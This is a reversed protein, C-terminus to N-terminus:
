RRWAYATSAGPTSGSRRAAAPRPLEISRRGTRVVPFPRWGSKGLVAACLGALQNQGGLRIVQAQIRGSDAAAKLEERAQRYYERAIGELSKSLRDLDDTVAYSLSQELLAASMWLIAALPALTAALFVLILKTRLRNVRNRSPVSCIRWPIADHLM